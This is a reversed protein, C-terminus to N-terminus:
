EGKIRIRGSDMGKLIEDFIGIPNDKSEVLRQMQTKNPNANPMRSSAASQIRTLTQQKKQQVAKGVEANVNKQPKARQVLDLIPKMRQTLMSDLTQITVKEKRRTKDRAEMIVYKLQDEVLSHYEEPIKTSLMTKKSDMWSKVTHSDAERASKRRLENLRDQEAQIEALKQKLVENEKLKKQIARQQPDMALEDAKKVLWQSLKEDPVDETIDDMFGDFDNELREDIADLTAKDQRLTEVEEALAQHKAYVENAVIAKAIINDLQEQSKIQVDYEKGGIEKKFKYSPFDSKTGANETETQTESSNDTDESTTEENNESAEEVEDGLGLLDEETGAKIDTNDVANTMQPEDENIGMARELDSFLSDVSFDSSNTPTSSAPASTSPTSPTSNVVNEPM